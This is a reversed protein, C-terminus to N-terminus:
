QEAIGEPGAVRGNGGGDDLVDSGERHTGM